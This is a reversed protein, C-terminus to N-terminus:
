TLEQSSSAHAALWRRTAALVQAARDTPEPFRERLTRSRLEISLPLDAQWRHLLASLPLVGDGPMLRGDIAEQRIAARDTVLPADPGADCFQAYAFLADPVAALDAATGGSRALHIPDVLLRGNPRDAARLVALADEVTVVDTFAGFELSVAIGAAAAHDCLAGFKDATAAKDPDSSVLLINPAGLIAALDIGRLLLPDLPGPKIWFVEADLIAVGRDEARRRLDRARADTWLAPELWVGFADYGASAAAHLTTEPVHEPLVGAALSLIRREARMRGADHPGGSM